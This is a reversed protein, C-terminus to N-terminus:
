NANILDFFAITL